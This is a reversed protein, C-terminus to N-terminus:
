EQDAIRDELYAKSFNIKLQVWLLNHDSMQFTRWVDKYYDELENEPKNKATSSVNLMDSKYTEYDGDRFVARNFRFVNAAKPVLEKQKLRFAIQDYYKTDKVNTKQIEKPVTFGNKTLAKMTEHDPHVINFDGLLIYNDSKDKDARKKLFKAIARIERKRRELKVGTEAGFFLHVTCLKFKFWGSQFAVLFPTRNFQRNPDLANREDILKKFEDGSLEEAQKAFDRIEKKTPRKPKFPIVIEGAIDRFWVKRNDYVFVMRENNGAVDTAIFDWTPGLQRMLRKFSTLDNTIEQLAVVDFASIIEAIYYISEKLRKGHKFKNSDFDRINWSALLLTEDVDRNPVNQKNLQKKIELINKSIRQRLSLPHLNRLGGIYTM